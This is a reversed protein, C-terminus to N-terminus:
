KVIRHQALHLPQTDYTLKWHANIGPWLLTPSLHILRGAEDTAKTVKILLDELAAESLEAPESLYDLISILPRPAALHMLTAPATCTAICAALFGRRTTM